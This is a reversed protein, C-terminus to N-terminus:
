AMAPACSSAVARLWAVHIQVQLDQVRQISSRGYYAGRNSPPKRHPSVPPSRIAVPPHLSVLSASCPHPDSVVPAFYDHTPTTTPTTAVAAPPFSVSGCRRCTLAQYSSSWLQARSWPGGIPAIRQAGVFDFSEFGPAGCRRCAGRARQRQRRVTAALALETLNLTAGRSLVALTGCARPRHGQGKEETHM